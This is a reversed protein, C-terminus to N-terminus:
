GIAICVQYTDNSTYIDISNRKSWDTHLFSASAGIDVLAAVETGELKIKTTPLVLRQNVGTNTVIQSVQAATM